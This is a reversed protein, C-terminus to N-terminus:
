GIYCCHEDDIINDWFSYEHLEGYIDRIFYSTYPRDENGNDFHDQVIEACNDILIELVSM